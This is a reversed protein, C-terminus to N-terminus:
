KGLYTVKLYSDHKGHDCLKEHQIWKVQIFTPRRSGLERDATAKNSMRESPAIKKMGDSFSGLLNWKGLTDLWNEDVLILSPVMVPSERLEESNEGNIEGM